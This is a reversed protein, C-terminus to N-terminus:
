GSAPAGPWRGSGLRDWARAAADWATLLALGPSGAVRGARAAEAAFTLRHAEQLPGSVDLNDALVRLRDLLHRAREALGHGPGSAPALAVTCAQASAALLPWAYRPSSPLDFRSLAGEAVTLAGGAQDRALHLEVELRAQPLHHQDRYGFGTLGARSAAALATAADLDGRSLPIRSRTGACTAASTSSTRSSSATV